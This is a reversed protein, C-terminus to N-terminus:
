KGRKEIKLPKASANEVPSRVEIAIGAKIFDKAQEGQLVEVQGISYSHASTICSTLFKVKIKEM